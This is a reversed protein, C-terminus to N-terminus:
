LRFQNAERVWRKLRPIWRPVNRRYEEYDAGFRRKLGPEEFFPIYTANIAVFILLWVFLPVSGAVLSEGLLIAFVGSIMPNRVHRYVGEVVLHSTPNWNALTGRGIMAFLRNTAVFLVIGLAIYLTGLFALITRLIPSSNSLGFTDTGTLYLITAPIVVTVVGPLLLIAQIHKWAEHM